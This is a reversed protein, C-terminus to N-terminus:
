RFCHKRWECNSQNAWNNKNRCIKQLFKGRRKDFCYNGVFHRMYFTKVIEPDLALTYDLAEIKEMTGQAVYTGGIKIWPYKQKILQIKIQEETLTAGPAIQKEIKRQSIDVGLM